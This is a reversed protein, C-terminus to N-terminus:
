HQARPPGSWGERAGRGPGQYVFAAWPVPWSSARWRSAQASQLAQPPTAGARYADYFDTMLDATRDDDVKWLSAIVQRAGAAFFASPLGILGESRSASGLGSGCASLVVLEARLSLQEIQFGYLFDAERGGDPDSPTFALRSLLPFDARHEGHTAIHLIESAGSEGGLLVEARARSGVFLWRKTPPAGSVANEAERRSHELRPFREESGFRPDAIATVTASESTRRREALALAVSASPVSATAHALLLPPPDRDDGGGKDAAAPRFPLVGFPIYQLMGQSSILIEERNLARALPTLVLDALRRLAQRASREKLASGEELFRYAFLAATEIERRSALEFQEVSRDTVVWAFSEPDALHYHLLLRDSGLLRTRIEDLTATQVIEMSEHQLRSRRADLSLVLARLLRAESAAPPESRGADLYVEARRTLTRELEDAPDGPPAEEGAPAASRIRELLSRARGRESAEFAQEILDRAGHLQGQTALERVLFDYYEQKEALFAARTVLSASSARVVEIRDIAQRAYRCASEPRGEAREIQATTFLLAGELIPDQVAPQGELLMETAHEIVDAARVASSQALYAVALNRLVRVEERRDGLDRFVRRAERYAREVERWEGLYSRAVAIQNLAVAWDRDAGEERLIAAAQEFKHVAARPEGRELDASGLGILAIAEERRQGLFQFARLSSQLDDVAEDTMGFTLFLRGRNQRSRAAEQADGLDRWSRIARDYADQAAFLDGWRHYIFGLDNWAAARQEQHVLRPVSLAFSQEADQYRNLALLTSGREWRGSALHEPHSLDTYIEIARDFRGLARELQGQDRELRGIRVLLDGQQHLEGLDEWARLVLAYERAAETLSGTRRLAEAHLSDRHAQVLARERRGAPRLTVTEIRVTSPRRGSGLVDIELRHEGDAPSVFLIEEPHEWGEPTDVEQLLTGDPGILRAILDVGDQLIRLHLFQGSPAHVTTRAPGDAPLQLSRPGASPVSIAEQMSAVRPASSHALLGAVAAAFAVAPLTRRGLQLAGM